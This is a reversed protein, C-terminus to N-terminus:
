TVMVPTYTYIYIYMTLFLTGRVYCSLLLEKLRLLVGTKIEHEM